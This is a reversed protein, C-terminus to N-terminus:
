FPWFVCQFCFLCFNTLCLTSIKAVWENPNRRGWNEGYIESLGWQSDWHALCGVVPGRSLTGTPDRSDEAPDIAAGALLWWHKWGGVKEQRLWSLTLMAAVLELELQSWPKWWQKIIQQRIGRAQRTVRWWWWGIISGGCALLPSKEWLIVKIISAPIMISPSPYHPIYPPFPTTIFPPSLAPILHLNM